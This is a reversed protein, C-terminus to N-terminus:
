IHVKAACYLGDVDIGETTPLIRRGFHDQRSAEHSGVPACTSEELKEYRALGKKPEYSLQELGKSGIREVGAELKSGNAKFARLWELMMLM